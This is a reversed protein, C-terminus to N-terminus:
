CVRQEDLNIEAFGGAQFAAVIASLADDSDFRVPIDYLGGWTLAHGVAPAATFTVEGGYRTVTHAGAAAGNDGVLVTSLVPLGIDRVYSYPGREYTKRLPFVRTFGDGTGLVQDALTVRSLVGTQAENPALLRVTAFDFPDRFPFDSFPGGMVLVHDLLDQIIDWQRAPAAPLKIKRLPHQWNKNRGEDGSAAETITTSYVPGIVCPYGPVSPPLYVDLFQSM